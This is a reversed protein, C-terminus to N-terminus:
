QTNSSDHQNSLTVQKPLPLQTSKREEMEAKIEGYLQADLANLQKDFGWNPYIFRRISHVYQQAEFWRMEHTIMMFAIVVTASRSVGAHCCTLVNPRSKNVIHPDPGYRRILHSAHKFHKHIPSAPSDSIEFHFSRIRLRTYLAKEKADRDGDETDLFSIVTGIRNAVLQKEDVSDARSGLYLRDKIHHMREARERTHTWQFMQIQTISEFKHARAHM